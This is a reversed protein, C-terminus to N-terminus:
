CDPQAVFQLGVVVESLFHTVSLINDELFGNLVMMHQVKGFLVNNALNQVIKTILLLGKRLSPDV